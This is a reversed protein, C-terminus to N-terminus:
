KLKYLYYHKNSYISTLNRNNLSDTSLLYDIKLKHHLEWPDKEHINYTYRIINGGNTTYPLALEFEKAPYKFFFLRDGLITTVSQESIKNKLEKLSTYFENKLNISSQERQKFEQVTKKVAFGSSLLLLIIFLQKSIIPLTKDMILIFCLASFLPISLRVYVFSNLYYFIITIINSLLCISSISLLLMNKEKLYYRYVFYFPAILTFYYPIIFETQIAKLKLPGEIINYIVNRGIGRIFHYFDLQFLYQIVNIHTAYAPANFYKMYVVIFGISILCVISLRIAEKRGSSFPIIAIIWFIFTVRFLSFLIVLIVYKVIDGYLKSHNNLTFHKNIKLLYVILIFAFLTNLAMPMFYFSYMMLVPSSLTIALLGWREDSELLKTKIIILVIFFYLLLNTLIYVKSSTGIIKMVGGYFMPYFVGYWDAELFTSVNESILARAKVSGTEAFVNAGSYYINEDQEFPVFEAIFAFRILLAAIMLLSLGTALKNFSIKFKM